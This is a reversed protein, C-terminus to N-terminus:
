FKRNAILNNDKRMMQTSVPPVGKIEKLFKEKGNVIECVPLLFFFLLGLKWGRNAKSIGDEKLKSM